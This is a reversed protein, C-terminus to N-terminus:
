GKFVQHLLELTILYMSIQWMTLLDLEEFTNKRDLFDALQQRDFYQISRSGPSLLLDRTLQIQKFVSQPDRPIPMHTKKRHLIPEPLFGQLMKKFLYKGQGDKVKLASPMPALLEVLRHDLFPSRAEVGFALATRDHFELLELLFFKLYLYLAQNLLDLGSTQALYDSLKQHYREEPKITELFGQSFLKLVVKWSPVWPFYKIQGTQLIDDLGLGRSGLYGALLEDAGEGCLVVTAYDKLKEYLLYMTAAGKNFPRELHWTLKELRSFYTDSSILFEHHKTGLTQALLRAYTKDRDEGKWPDPFDITFTQLPSQTMRSAWTTITSSDTGGSLLIGLPVEGVLRLQTSDKLLALFSEAYYSELNELTRKESREEQPVLPIEWYKNLRYRSSTVTLTYGPPLTQIGNFLTHDELPTGCLLVEAVVEPNIGTNIGSITDPLSQAERTLYDLIAKAESAFIFQNNTVTYHLPVIGMRDRALFLKKKVNDWIAFAFQGNLQQVCDEGFAEYAQLIVETDSDTKFSYGHSKLTGQLERYNFIEGNYTIWVSEEDNSMPQRGYKRDIIALRRNGLGVRGRICVGADDPGRHQQIMNMQELIRAEVPKNLAFNFIGSIGCM